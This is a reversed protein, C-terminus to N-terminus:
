YLLFILIVYTFLDKKYHCIDKIKKSAYTLAIFIDFIWNIALFSEVNQIFNFFNILRLVTFEPYSFTKVLNSGFCGIISFIMVFIVVFILCYSKMNTKFSSKEELMLIYPTTTLTAYNLATIFLNNKSITYIPLFNEIKVYPTVASIKTVILLLGVWFLIQATKAIANTGKSGLYIALILFPLCSVIAKTFPLYYSYIFTAFILFLLFIFYLYFALLIGRLLLNLPTKKLLHNHLSGQISDSIKTYIYLIGIGILFGLIVGIWADKEGASVILSVGGGLFLSRGILFKSQMNQTETIKM